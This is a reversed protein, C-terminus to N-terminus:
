FPIDDNDLPDVGEAPSEDDEWEAKVTAALASKDDGGRTTGGLLRDRLHKMASLVTERDTSPLGLNTAAILGSQRLTSGLATTENDGGVVAEISRIKSLIATAMAEDITGPVVLYELIPPESRKGQHVDALRDEAQRFDAPVWELELFVGAAADSLDIGIGSSLTNALLIAPGPYRKWAEIVERRDAPSLGQYSGVDFIHPFSQVEERSLKMLYDTLASSLQEITDKFHAFGVVKVGRDTHALLRQIAKPMKATSTARAMEELAKRDNFSPELEELARRVTPAYERELRHYHTLQSAAVDCLIVQRDTKPLWPAVEARTKRISVAALRQKLEEPNSEGSDTWGHDKEEAACYRKAYTWYGGMSGPLSLDFLLWLNKSRNRMPTGSIVWWAVIECQTEVNEEAVDGVKILPKGAALRQAAQSRPAKRSQFVHGEDAIVIVRRGEVIRAIDEERQKFIEYHCGLFLFPRARLENIEMQLLSDHTRLQVLDVHAWQKLQEEWNGAVGAPYLVLVMDAYPVYGDGVRQGTLLATAGGIATPTKGVRMDFTLFFSRNQALAKAAELQYPRLRDAILAPIEVQRPPVWTTSMRLQTSLVAWSHIPVFWAKHLQPKNFWPGPPAGQKPGWRAGPLAKVAELTEKNYPFTLRVWGSARDGYATVFAPM